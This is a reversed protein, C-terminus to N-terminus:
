DLIAKFGPSKHAEKQSEERNRQEGIHTIHLPSPTAAFGNEKLSLFSSLEYLVRNKTEDEPFRLTSATMTKSWGPVVSDRSSKWMSSSRKEPVIHAWFQSLLNKVVRQCEKERDDRTQGGEIELDRTLTMHPQKGDKSGYKEYM